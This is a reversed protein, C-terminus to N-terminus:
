RRTVATALVAPPAEVTELGPAPAVEILQPPAIQSM